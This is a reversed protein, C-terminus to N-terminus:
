GTWVTYAPPRCVSEQETGMEPCSVAHMRSTGSPVFRSGTCLLPSVAASWCRDHFWADRAPQRCPAPSEHQEILPPTTTHIPIFAITSLSGAIDQQWQWMICVRPGSGWDSVELNLNSEARRALVPYDNGSTVMALGQEMKLWWVIIM